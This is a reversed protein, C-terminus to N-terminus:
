SVPRAFVTMVDFLNVYLAPDWRRSVLWRELRAAGPMGSQHLIMAIAVWKGRHSVRLVEYGERELLRRLTRVDFFFNHTVDAFLRWRHGTLRRVLSGYDGTSLALVGGPKLLRRINALGLDPRDLHEIADWLTVADFSGLGPPPSVISGEDVPLGLRDRAFGAAYASVDIGRGRWGRDRAAELFFGAACGVDFLDRGTTLAELETLARRANRHISARDALYDAYVGGRYYSEDYLAKPGPEPEAYVLGCAECRKIPRETKFLQHSRSGGCLLCTSSSEALAM